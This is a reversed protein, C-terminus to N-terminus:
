PEFMRSEAVVKPQRKHPRLRLKRVSVQISAPVSGVSRDACAHECERPDTKQINPLIIPLM